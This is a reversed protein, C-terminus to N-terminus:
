PRRVRARGPRPRLSLRAPLGVPRGYRRPPSHWSMKPRARYAGAAPELRRVDEVAGGGRGTLARPREINDEIRYSARIQGVEDALEFLVPPQHQAPGRAAERGGSKPEPKSAPNWLDSVRDVNLRSGKSGEALVAAILSTKAKASAPSSSGTISSAKGSSSAPFAWALSSDPLTKPLVRVPGRLAGFPPWAQRLRRDVGSVGEVQAPVVGPRLFHVAQTGRWM